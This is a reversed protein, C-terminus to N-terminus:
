RSLATPKRLNKRIKCPKCEDDSIDKEETPPPDMETVKDTKARKSFKTKAEHAKVNELFEALIKTNLIFHETACKIHYSTRDEFLLNFIPSFDLVKM